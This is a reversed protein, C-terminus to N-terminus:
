QRNNFKRKLRGTLYKERFNIKCMYCHMNKCIHIYAYIQLMNWISSFENKVAVDNQIEIEILLVSTCQKIAHM